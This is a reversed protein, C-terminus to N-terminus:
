QSLNAAEIEVTEESVEAGLIERLLSTPFFGSV